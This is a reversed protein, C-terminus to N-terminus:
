QENEDSQQEDVDDLEVSYEIDQIVENQHPGFCLGLGHGDHRIDKKLDTTGATMAKIIDSFTAVIFQGPWLWLIINNNRFVPGIKEFLSMTTPTNSVNPGPLYYLRSM